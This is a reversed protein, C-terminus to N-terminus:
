NFCDIKAMEALQMWDEMTLILTDKWRQTQLIRTGIMMYLLLTGCKRELEKAM